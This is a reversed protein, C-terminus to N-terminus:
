CQWHMLARVALAASAKAVRCAFLEARHGQVRGRYCEEVLRRVQRPMMRNCITTCCAETSSLMGVLQLTLCCSCAAALMMASRSHPFALWRQCMVHQVQEPKLQVDKLYERAFLIQQKLSETVDDTEQMVLATEDQLCCWLRLLRSEASPCSRRGASLMATLWLCAPLCAHEEM